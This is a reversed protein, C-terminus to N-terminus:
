VINYPLPSVIRLISRLEAMTKDVNACSNKNKVDGPELKLEAEKLAESRHNIIASIGPATDVRIIKGGTAAKFPFVLSIIANECDNQKDSPIIKM